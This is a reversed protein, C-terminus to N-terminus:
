IQSIGWIWVIERMYRYIEPVLYRDALVILGIAIFGWPLPRGLTSRYAALDIQRGVLIRVIVLSGLVYATGLLAHVLRGTNEFWLYFTGSNWLYMNAAGIGAVIAYGILAFATQWRADRCGLFWANLTSWVLSPLFGGLITAWYPSSARTAFRALPGRPVEEPIQYRM